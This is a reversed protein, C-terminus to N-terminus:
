QKVVYLQITKTNTGSADTVTLRFDCNGAKNMLTLMSMFGTIDFSLSKNETIGAGTPFGLGQLKAEYQGPNILDLHSTLGVGTLEDPTLVNESIIDVTFASFASETTIGIKIEVENHNYRSNFDYTFTGAQNTWVVIPGAETSGSETVRITLKTYSTRGESDTAIYKVTHNGQYRFLASMGADKVTATVVSTEAAERMLVYASFASNEPWLEAKGNKFGAADIATMFDANDSEFVMNISRLTSGTAPTFVCKLNENWKALEEDYMSGNIVYGNAIDRGDLTVVPSNEDSIDEDPITEETFAYLRMVDVNIKEDYVWNEVTIQFQANGKDANLVNISIKRWQGAKCATIEKTWNVTVYNPQEDAAAKNYQGSLLIKITNSAEVAKFYAATGADAKTRDFVLGHEGISLTVTLKEKGAAEAEADSMFLNQLDQTLTVTTKINALTCVLDNVTTENNKIVNKTVSGAYVPKEWDAFSSGSIYGAYDPSEASITYSGPALPLKRNEEKKLDAYVYDLEENTKLNKIKVKYDDPADSTQGAARTLPSFVSRVVAATGSSLEEAYNAVQVNFNNMSLYGIGDPNDTGQDFNVSEDKCGTLLLGLILLIFPALNKM